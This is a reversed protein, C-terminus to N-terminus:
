HMRAPPQVPRSLAYAFKPNYAVARLLLFPFPLRGDFTCGRAPHGARWGAYLVTSLVDPRSDLMVTSIMDGLERPFLAMGPQFPKGPDPPLSDGARAFLRRVDFLAPHTSAQERFSRVCDTLLVYFPADCSNYGVLAETRRSFMALVAEIDNSPEELMGHRFVFPAVPLGFGALLVAADVGSAMEFAGTAITTFSRVREWAPIFAPHGFSGFGHGPHQLDTAEIIAREFLEKQLARPLDNLDSAEHEAVLDEFRKAAKAFLIAGAKEALTDTTFM